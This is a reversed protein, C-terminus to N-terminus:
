HDVTSWFLFEWQNEAMDLSFLFPVLWFWGDRKRVCAISSFLFVVAFADKAEGDHQTNMRSRIEKELNHLCANRVGELRVHGIATYM